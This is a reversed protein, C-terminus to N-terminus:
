RSPEQTLVSVVIDRVASRGWGGLDRTAGNVNGILALRLAEEGFGNVFLREVIADAMRAARAEKLIDNMRDAGTAM